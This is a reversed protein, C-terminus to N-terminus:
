FLTFPRFSSSPIRGPWTRAPPGLPRSRLYEQDEGPSTSV